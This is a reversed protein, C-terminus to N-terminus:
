GSGGGDSDPANTDRSGEDDSPQPQQQTSVQPSNSDQGSGGRDDTQVCSSAGTLVAVVFVLASLTVKWAATRRM